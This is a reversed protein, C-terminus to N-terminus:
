IEAVEALLADYEIKVQQYRERSDGVDEDLKMLEKELEQSEAEKKRRKNLLRM